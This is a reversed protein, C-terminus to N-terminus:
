RGAEKRDAEGTTASSNLTASTVELDGDTRNTLPVNFIHELEEKIDRLDKRGVTMWVVVVSSAQCACSVSPSPSFPPLLSHPVKIDM